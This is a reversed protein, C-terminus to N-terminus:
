RMYAELAKQATANTEAKAKGLSKAMEIARAEESNEGSGGAGPPPVKGYELKLAKEKAAWAMQILQLANEIDESGYLYEAIKGSTDEDTGLKSMVTKVAKTRAVERRLEDIEKARKEEAEKAEAAAQEEATQKTRLERKYGAAEKTAKDVADKSKALEAKLRAIEANADGAENGSGAGDGDGDGADANGDSGADTGAGAGDGAGGAGDGADPKYLAYWEPSMWYGNRNKLM